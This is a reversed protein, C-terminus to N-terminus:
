GYDTDNCIFSLLIILKAKKYESFIKIKSSSTIEKIARQDDDDSLGVASGNVNEDITPIRRHRIM